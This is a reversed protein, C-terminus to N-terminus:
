DEDEEPTEGAIDERCESLVRLCVERPYSFRGGYNVFIVADAHVGRSFDTGDRRPTNRDRTLSM